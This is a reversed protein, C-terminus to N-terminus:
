LWNHNRYWDVTKSMGEALSVQPEFNLREKIKSNDFFHNETFWDIVRQNLPPKHDLLRGAGELLLCSLQAVPYPISLPSIDKDMARAIAYVIEKSTYTRNACVIFKEGIAAQENMTLTFARVCDDIYTPQFLNNARGVFHIRDDRVAAFIQLHHEDYPGYILSPMLITTNLRDSVSSVLRDAALKTKYYTKSEDRGAYTEDLAQDKVPGIVSSTSCHIFQKISTALSEELINKTGLVNVRYSSDPDSNWGRRQAALHYVVDVNQTIGTLSEKDTIDGFEVEAGIRDLFYAGERNQEYVLCRLDHKDRLTLALNKGIFGTAGTILIKM